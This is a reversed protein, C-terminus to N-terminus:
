IPCAQAQFLQSCVFKEVGKAPKILFVAVLWFYEIFLPSILFNIFIVKSRFVVDAVSAL